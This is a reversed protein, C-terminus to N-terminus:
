DFSKPVNERDGTCAESGGGRNTRESTGLIVSRGLERMRTTEEVVKYIERRILLLPRTDM